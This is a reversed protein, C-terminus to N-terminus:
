QAAPVTRVSNLVAYAAGPGLARGRILPASYTITLMPRYDNVPTPNASGVNTYIAQPTSLAWSTAATSCGIGDGIAIKKANRDDFGCRELTRDLEVRAGGGSPVEFVVRQMTDPSAYSVLRFLTPYLLRHRAEFRPDLTWTPPVCFTFGESKIEKWGPTERVSCTQGTADSVVSPRKGGSACAPIIAALGILAAIRLSRTMLFEQIPVVADYHALGPTFEYAHHSCWRQALEPPTLSYVTQHAPARPAASTPRIALECFLPNMLM